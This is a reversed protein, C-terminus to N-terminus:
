RRTGADLPRPLGAPAAHGLSFLFLRLAGEAWSGLAAAGAAAALMLTDIEFRKRRLNDVAERLTYFGGFFYAAVYCALPLRTM